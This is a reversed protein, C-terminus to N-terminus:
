CPRSPRPVGSVRSCRVRVPELRSRAARAGRVAPLVGRTVPCDPAVLIFTNTYSM